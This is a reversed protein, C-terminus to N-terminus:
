TTLLSYDSWPILLGKVPRWKRLWKFLNDQSQIGSVSDWNRVSM